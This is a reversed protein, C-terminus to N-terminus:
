IHNVAYDNPIRSFGASPCFRERFKAIVEMVAFDARYWNPAIRAPALIAQLKRAQARTTPLEMQSPLMGLRHCVNNRAREKHTGSRQARKRLAAVTGATWGIFVLSGVWLLAGDDDSMAVFRGQPEDRPKSPMISRSKSNARRPSTQRARRSAKQRPKRKSM